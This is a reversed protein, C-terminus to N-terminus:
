LREDHSHPCPQTQHCQDPTPPGWHISNDSPHPCSLHEMSELDTSNAHHYQDPTSPETYFSSNKTQSLPCPWAQQCQDPISPRAYISSDKDQFRPHPLHRNWPSWTKLTLRSSTSWTSFARRSNSWFRFLFSTACTLKQSVQSWTKLRPNSCMFDVSVYFINLINTSYMWSLPWFFGWFGSLVWKMEM